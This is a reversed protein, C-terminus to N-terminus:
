RKWQKMQIRSSTWFYHGVDPTKVLILLLPEPSPVIEVPNVFVDFGLVTAEISRELM